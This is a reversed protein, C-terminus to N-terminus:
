RTNATTAHGIVEGDGAADAYDAVYRLLILTLTILM